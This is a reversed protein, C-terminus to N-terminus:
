PASGPPPRRSVTDGVCPILGRPRARQEVLNNLARGPPPADTVGPYEEVLRLHEALTM